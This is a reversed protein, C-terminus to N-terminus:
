FFSSHIILFKFEGFLHAYNFFILMNRSYFELPPINKFDMVAGLMIACDIRKNIKFDSKLFELDKKKFIFKKSKIKSEKVDIGYVKNIKNQELCFKLLHTGISGSCGIILINM